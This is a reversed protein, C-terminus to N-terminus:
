DDAEVNKLEDLAAQKATIHYTANKAGVKFQTDRHIIKLQNKEAYNGTGAGKRVFYRTTQATAWDVIEQLEAASLESGNCGDHGAKPHWNQIKDKNTPTRSAPASSISSPSQAAFAAEASKTTNPM